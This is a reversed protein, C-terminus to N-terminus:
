QSELINQCKKRGFVTPFYGLVNKLMDLMVEVRPRLCYLEVAGVPEQNLDSCMLVLKGRSTVALVFRILEGTPKWLLDLSSILIEEEKGYEDTM